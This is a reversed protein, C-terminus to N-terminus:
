IPKLKGGEVVLFEWPIEDGQEHKACNWDERNVAVLLGNDEFAALLDAHRAHLYDARAGTYTVLVSLPAGLRRLAKLETAITLVNNEHEITVLPKGHRLLVADIGEFEHELQVAPFCGALARSIYATMSATRRASTDWRLAARNVVFSAKYAVAFESPSISM